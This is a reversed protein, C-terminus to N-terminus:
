LDGKRPMIVIEEMMGSESNQYAHLLSRAITEPTIMLSRDWEGEADDWIGTDVAGPYVGTVYINDQRVEQRLVDTLGMLGFKSACYAGCNAYARKGATSVINFIHGSQQTLMIPLVQKIVSFISTLNSALVSEFEKVTTDLIPKFLAVGACNVLIDIRDELDMVKEVLGQVQDPKTVDCPVVHIKGTGLPEIESRTKELEQVTRAVLFLHASHEAFERAIAKGIGRGAGTVMVVQHKISRM